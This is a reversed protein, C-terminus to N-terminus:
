KRAIVSDQHDGYNGPRLLRRLKIHSLGTTHLKTKIWMATADGEMGPMTAVWIQNINEAEARKILEYIKIQNPGIGERPSILGHLVHYLGKYKGTQEVVEVDSPQEV